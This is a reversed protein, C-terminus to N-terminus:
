AAADESMARDFLKAMTTERLLFEFDPKWNAHEGRYPGRGSHFDDGAAETFYDEWFKPTVRENGFLHLCIQRATPLSKEVAKMRPTNLVSCASLLGTPKALIRNYAAKADEAIQAIRAKERSKRDPEPTLALPPSVGSRLESSHDGERGQEKGKGTGKRETGSDERTNPLFPSLPASNVTCLHEIWLKTGKSRNCSRCALVFNEAITQGGNAEPELHDLELGPFTVWGSPRGNSLKHWHVQGFAGCYYCQADVQGGPACGYKEAVKRRVGLPIAVKRSGERFIRSKSPKDVRQHTEWKGIRYFTAGEVALLEIRGSAEFFQFWDDFVLADEKPMVEMALREPEDPILGHDDAATWLAIYILRALPPLQVMFSDTWFEPKITRIRAM